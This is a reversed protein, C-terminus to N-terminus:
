VQTPLLPMLETEVASKWDLVKSDFDEGISDLLKITTSHAMCVGLKQLREFVQFLSHGTTFTSIMYM